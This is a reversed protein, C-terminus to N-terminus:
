ERKAGFAGVIRNREFVGGVEEHNPGYFKGNIKNGGSGSGFSGNTLSLNRWRMDNRSTDDWLDFVNSFLVDVAPTLFDDITIRADGQIENGRTSSNSVDVGVMSGTWTGSGTKPNTGTANGISFSELTGGDELDGETFLNGLVAFVNNEM